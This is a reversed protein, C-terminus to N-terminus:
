AIQYETCTPEWNAKLTTRDLFHYSLIIQQDFQRVVYEPNSMFLAGGDLKARGVYVSDYHEAWAGSHDHMKLIKTEWSRKRVDKMQEAYRASEDDTDSPHNLFAKMNGLFLAFRLIGGPNGHELETTEIYRGDSDTVLKGDIYRPTYTSTWGAYRVSKRFSGFYYYPGMMANVTSAKLGYSKIFSLLQYYTGHYAVTPTEIENGEDNHLFILQPHTLFLATVSAHIPFNTMKKFNVIESILVWWWEDSRFKDIVTHEIQGIDYFMYVDHAGQIYGISTLKPLPISSTLKRAFTDSFSLVNKTGDFRKYPFIMYDKHEQSYKYLYYQLFPLHSSENVNFICLHIKTTKKVAHIHEFDTELTDMINYKYQHDKRGYTLLAGQSVDKRADIISHTKKQSHLSLKKHKDGLVIRSKTKVKKKIIPLKNKSKKPPPDM